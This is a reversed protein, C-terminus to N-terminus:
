VLERWDEEGTMLKEWMPYYDMTLDELHAVPPEMGDLLQHVIKETLGTKPKNASMLTWLRVQRKKGVKNTRTEELTGIPEDFKGEAIAKDMADPEKKPAPGDPMPPITDAVTYGTVEQLVWFSREKGQKEIATFTLTDGVGFPHLGVKDAPVALIQEKLTLWLANDKGNGRATIIGSAEFKETKKGPEAKKETPMPVPAKLEKQPEGEIINDAQGMEEDTYVGALEDPFAKRLALAEACKGLMLYPMRAWMSNPEGLEGPREPKKRQVYEGWRATAKYPIKEGHSWRYVVVKAWKPNPATESDYEPDEIGALEGTRSATSRYGDIGTQIVMKYAKAENDWRKVPRIQGSFPDLRKLKAIELFLRMENEDCGKAITDALLKTQASSFELVQVPRQEKVVALENAM